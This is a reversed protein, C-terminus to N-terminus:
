SKLTLKRKEQAKKRSAKSDEMAKLISAEQASPLWSTKIGDTIYLGTQSQQGGVQPSTVSTPPEDTPEEKIIPQRFVSQSRKGM